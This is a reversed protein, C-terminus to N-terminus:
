KNFIKIAGVEGNKVYAVCEDYTGNCGKSLELLREFTLGQFNEIKEDHYLDYGLNVSYQFGEAVKIM